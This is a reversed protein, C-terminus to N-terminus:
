KTIRSILYKNLDVHSFFSLLIPEIKINSIKTTLELNNRFDIIDDTLVLRIYGRNTFAKLPLGIKNNKSKFTKKHDEWVKQFETNLINIDLFEAKNNIHINFLAILLIIQHPALNGRAKDRKLNDIFEKPDM